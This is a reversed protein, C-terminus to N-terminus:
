ENTGLRIARLAAHCRLLTTPVGFAGAKTIVPMAHLGLAMSLPVGPEIDRVVRLGGAGFAALLDRATEGGTAVLAGVRDIWPQLLRGLAQCLVHGQSLDSQADAELRLLVDRGAGLAEGINKSFVPWSPHSEGARLLGLPIVFVAIEDLVGLSDAQQQSVSSLSGVVTLIPGRVSVQPLEGKAVLGAALSVHPLLGASGVWYVPLDISASAITALDEEDEADCVLAKFQGSAVLGALEAALDGRTKHVPVSTAPVGHANLIAVIDAEGQIKENKWIETNELPVGHVLVKGAHTTRGALPFAPAVIAVGADALAAMEAAFNGRLTSDIKKYFLRAPAAYARWLSVNVAQADEVPLYRSNADVAVVEDQERAGGNFLVVSRLGQRAAGLASDAAGSLDDALIFLSDACRPM